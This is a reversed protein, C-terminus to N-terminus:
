DRVVKLTFVISFFDTDRFHDEVGTRMVTNSVKFLKGSDVLDEM